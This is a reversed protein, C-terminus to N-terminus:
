FAPLFSRGPQCYLWRTLRFARMPIDARQMASPNDRPFNRTAFSNPCGTM